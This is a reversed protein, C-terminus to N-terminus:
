KTGPRTSKVVILVWLTLEIVHSAQDESFRQESHMGKNRIARLEQLMKVFAPPFVAVLKDVVKNLTANTDTDGLESEVFTRSSLEFVRFAMLASATWFGRDACSGMEDFDEHLTTAMGARVHAPLLSSLPTGYRKLQPRGVVAYVRQVAAAIQEPTLVVRPKPSQAKARMIITDVTTPASAAHLREHPVGKTESCGSLRRVLERRCRELIWLYRPAARPQDKAIAHGPKGGCDKSRCCAHAVM